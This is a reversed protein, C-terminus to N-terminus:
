PMSTVQTSVFSSLPQIDHELERLKEYIRIFM